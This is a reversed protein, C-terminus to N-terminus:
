GTRAQVSDAADRVTPFLNEEGIVDLVGISRMFRVVTARPRALMLQIGFQSTRTRLEVLAGSGTIDIEDVGEFDLILSRPRPDTTDLRNAVDTAFIDANTFLLPAEFRYILAGPVQAYDPHDGVDGFENGEKNRGLIGIHPHDLRSILLGFSLVVGIVVGPLIGIVIVGLLAALAAWLEVVHARYLATLKSFDVMGSVAHIVVAALITEPLNKFLGALFLITLTALVSVAIMVMPTKAGSEKAAASKSLSGISPLGQLTGAGLNAAGYAILERNPDISEHHEAALAKAIAISTAYGVIVVSLAGPLLSYVEQITVGSFSAFHFGSPVTGVLKIGYSQLNFLGSVLISGVVVLIAGPVKPLFRTMAFLLALGIVGVAVTPWQWRGVGTLTNWLVLITDGSPKSIGVLKPLQGVIMFLGLGIIFGDLVPRAFFRAVFGLRLLGLLVFIAGAMMTLIATLAVHHDTSAGAAVVGAVSAGAISAVAADIGVFMRRSTGFLAYGLGALPIAYLGYQVPVGAIGAYALGEPIILAWVVIGALLDGRLWSIKYAPLWRAIPLLRQIAGESPTSQKAPETPSRPEQSTRPEPASSM